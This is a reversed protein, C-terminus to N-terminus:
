ITIIVRVRLAFLSPKPAEAVNQLQPGNNNNNVNENNNNNNNPVAQNVHTPLLFPTIELLEGIFMFWERILYMVADKPKVYKFLLPVFYNILLAFSTVETFAEYFRFNFPLIKYAILGAFFNTNRRRPIKGNIKKGRDQILQIVHLPLTLNVFILVSHLTVSIFIARVLNYMPKTVLDRIFHDNPDDPDRLFWLIGPRGVRRITQVVSWFLHM